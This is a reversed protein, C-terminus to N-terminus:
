YSSPAGYSSSPASYSGGGSPYNYGGAGYTTQRYQAVQIAQRIGELDIGVVRSVYQPAGYQSSPVGYQTSPVGYSSSISGGGHGGGGRAAANAEERLLILRIKNLLDSDVSAGESTSYGVSEQIYGGGGGGGGGGLFNGGGGIYGGGGGGSPRAYSYGSPPEAYASVALVVVLCLTFTNM